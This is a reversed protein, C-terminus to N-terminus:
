YRRTAAPRQPQTGSAFYRQYAQQSGHRYAYYRCPSYDECTEARQEAPSKYKRMRNYNNLGHGRPQNYVNGGQSSIFSNARSPPVFLDEISETSEHSEYCLCVSAVACLALFQLLSRMRPSTQGGTTKSADPSSANNLQVSKFRYIHAHSLNIM